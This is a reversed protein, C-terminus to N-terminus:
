ASAAAMAWRLERQLEASATAMELGPVPTHAHWSNTKTRSDTTYPPSESSLKEVYKILEAHATQRFTRQPATLRPQMTSATRALGFKDRRQMVTVIIQSGELAYIEAGEHAGRFTAGYCFQQTFGSQRDALTPPHRHSTNCLGRTDASNEPEGAPARPGDSPWTM